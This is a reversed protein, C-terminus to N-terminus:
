PRSPQGGIWTELVNLSDDALVLDARYGPAIRGLRDNLGLFNAPHRAAMNVAGPLDIQLMSISNRVASAM